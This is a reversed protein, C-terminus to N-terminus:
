PNSEQKLIKGIADPPPAPAAANNSDAAPRAKIAPTSLLDLDRLNIKKEAAQKRADYEEMTKGIMDKPILVQLKRAGYALLPRTKANMLLAPPADHDDQKATQPQGAQQQAPQQQQPEDIGPWLVISAGLYLLSVVLAGRLLGYLFGLSRDISTLARGRILLYAVLAGAVTLLIIAGVFVGAMSAWAAVKGSKIYHHVFPVAFPYLKVAAFYAGTWAILSFIERMFGRMLALFGSLLVIGIVVYDLTNFGSHPDM